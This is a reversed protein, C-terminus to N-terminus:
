GKVNLERFYDNPLHSNKTEDSEEPEYESSEDDSRLDKAGKNKVTQIITCILIWTWIVHLVQLGMALGLIIHWAPWSHYDSPSKMWPVIVRLPLLFIRTVIWTIAFFVFTVTALSDQKLYKLMKAVHLPIDAFDHIIILLTGM